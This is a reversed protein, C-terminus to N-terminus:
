RSSRQIWALKARVIGFATATMMCVSWYTQKVAGCQRCYKLAKLLLLSFECKQTRLVADKRRSVEGIKYIEFNADTKLAACFIDRNGDIFILYQDNQNGGRSIAIQQVVSKTQYVIPEAQRTAGPM